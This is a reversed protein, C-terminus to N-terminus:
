SPKSGQKIRPTAVRHTKPVVANPPHIYQSEKFAERQIEVNDTVGFPLGMRLCLAQDAIVLEPHALQKAKEAQQKIAASLQLAADWPIPPLVAKGGALLVVKTGHQRISLQHIRIPDAM